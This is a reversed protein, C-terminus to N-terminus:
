SCDRPSPSTYLLCRHVVKLEFVEVERRNESESQILIPVRGTAVCPADWDTKNGVAIAERLVEVFVAGPACGDGRRCDGDEDRRPPADGRAAALREADERRPAALALEGFDLPTVRSPTM